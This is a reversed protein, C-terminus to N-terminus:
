TLELFTLSFALLFFSKVKSVTLTVEGGVKTKFNDEKKLCLVHDQHGKNLITRRNWVSSKQGRLKPFCVQVGYFISLLSTPLYMVQM